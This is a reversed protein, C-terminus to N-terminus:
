EDRIIQSVPWLEDNLQKNKNMSLIWQMVSYPLIWVHTFDGPDTVHLLTLSLIIFPMKIRVITNVRGIRTLLWSSSVVAPVVAVVSFSVVVSLKVVVSAIVVSVVAAGVVIYSFLMLVLWKFIFTEACWGLGSFLGCSCCLFCCCLLWCCDNCCSFM